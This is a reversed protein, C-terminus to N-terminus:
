AAVVDEMQWLFFGNEKEAPRNKEKKGRKSGPNGGSERIRIASSRSTSGADNFRPFYMVCGTRYEFVVTVIKKKKEAPVRMYCGSITRGERSEIKASRGVDPQTTFRFTQQLGAFVGLVRSWGERVPIFIMIEKGLDHIMGAPYKRAADEEMTKKKGLAAAAGRGARGKLNEYAHPGGKAEPLSMSGCFVGGKESPQRHQANRGKAFMIRIDAAADAERAQPVGPRSHM